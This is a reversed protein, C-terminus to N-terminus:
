NSEFIIKLEKTEVTGALNTATITFINDGDRLRVSTMFKGESSATTPAGNVRVVVDPDTKGTITIDTQNTRFGDAPTEIILTPKEDQYLVTYVPSKKFINQKRIRMEVVIENMGKQLTLIEDFDDSEAVMKKQDEGNIVFTLESDTTATGHVALKASSTADPVSYLEPALVFDQSNSLGSNKSGSTINAIFLSTNILLKFGITAFFVVLLIAFFVVMVLQNRAKKSRM